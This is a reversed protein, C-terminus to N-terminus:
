LSPAHWWPTATVEPRLHRFSRGACIVIESSRGDREASYLSVGPRLEEPTFDDRRNTGSADTVAFAEHILTQWSQDTVSWYRVSKLRSVAGLRAVWVRAGDPEHLRGTIAVLLTPAAGDWGLCALPAWRTVTQSQVKPPGTAAAQYTPLPSGDCPPRPGDAAGATRVLLASLLIVIHTRLLRRASM